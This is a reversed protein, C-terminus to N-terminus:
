NGNKESFNIANKNRIQVEHLLCCAGEIYQLYKITKVSQRGSPRKILYVWNGPRKFTVQSGVDQM